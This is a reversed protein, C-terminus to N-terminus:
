LVCPCTLTQPDGHIPTWMQPCWMPLPCQEPVCDAGDAGLFSPNHVEVMCGTQPSLACACSMWWSGIIFYSYCTDNPGQDCTTVPCGGDTYRWTGAVPDWTRTVIRQCGATSAFAVQTTGFAALALAAVAAIKSAFNM